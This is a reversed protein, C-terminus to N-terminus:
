LTSHCFFIKKEFEVGFKVDRVFLSSQDLLRKTLYAKGHYLVKLKQQDSIGFNESCPLSFLNLETVDGLCIELHEHEAFETKQVFLSDSHKKPLKKDSHRCSGSMEFNVNSRLLGQTVCM